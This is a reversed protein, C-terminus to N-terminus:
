KWETYIKYRIAFKVLGVMNKVQTKQFLISRYRKVTEESLNLMSAIECTTKEDCILKLVETERPSFAQAFLHPDADDPEPLFPLVEETYYNRGALVSSIALQIEVTTSEKTLIGKVGFRYLQRILDPNTKVGLAIFNPIHGSKLIPFLSLIDFEQIEILIIDWFSQKTLDLLNNGDYAEDVEVKQPIDEVIKRLSDRYIATNSAILVKHHEKPHTLIM